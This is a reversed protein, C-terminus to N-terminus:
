SRRRQRGNSDLMLSLKLRKAEIEKALSQRDADPPMSALKAKLEEIEKMLEVEAPVCKASKLVSYSLRLDAPTAFYADLDIPKGKGPLNDFEGSDMAERIKDEVWKGFM